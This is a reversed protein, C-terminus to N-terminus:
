FEITEILLWKIADEKIQNNVIKKIYKILDNNMFDKKTQPNLIVEGNDEIYEQYGRALCYKDVLLLKKETSWNVVPEQTNIFGLIDIAM